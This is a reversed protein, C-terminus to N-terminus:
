KERYAKSAKYLEVRKKVTEAERPQDGVMALMQESVEVAEDFRGAEALAAALTDMLMAHKYADLECVAKAWRVAEEGNRLADDPNTALIWALNNAWPLNGAETSLNPELRLAERFHIAAQQSQKSQLLRMALEAHAKPDDPTLEVVKAFADFSEAPLTQMARIRGLGRYARAMKPDIAIADQFHAAAYSMAPAMPTMGSFVPNTLQNGLCEGLMLHFEATEPHMGIRRGLEAMWVKNRPGQALFTARESPELQRFLHLPADFELRLHLDTNLADSGSRAVMRDLEAQGLRYHLLLILHLDTGGFWQKLDATIEPSKDVIAQLAAISAETPMLPKKSALLITDQGLCLALMGCHPFESRLTRVIMLYDDLTFHYAQLWQALVGDDTLHERAAHFFEKTFLGSVGALWPNSPESIILDYKKSTGQIATRGDGLIMSFRAEAAIREPSVRQSEPLQANRAELAARTKEHPRSNWPGFFESAEYVAPEIECCTVNTGPFLLSKGPTCGSGFGIVAVEKADHKFIRPIFASGLQTVMDGGSSADIKGNVRLNVQNQGFTTVFVNSSAGERFFLPSILSRGQEDVELEARITPSDGYLFFGVDTKRPDIPRGLFAVLLAAAVAAGGGRLQNTRGRWPIIVLLAISYFAAALALAGATGIWPFLLVSTLGAGAISGVTNWGYIDGVARGVRPGGAYTLHVFLPFLLGMAVAPIFEVAASMGVCLAGNAIQWGRLHQVTMDGATQSLTPLLLKGALATILLIGVAAIPVMPSSAVRRLAVHFILSGVAMGLLVVFLTATFAYTSGGLVLALQRSWTMELILAACGALTTGFYLGLLTPRWGANTSLDPAPQPKQKVRTSGGLQSGVLLSVFGITINVAAALNNTWLLGLSPLLHFGALYCGTAAGLTNIGYLWGTAHDLSEDRATLQRVLLPLTGGMLACAPGIVVLTICFQVLYRLLPQEPISAYLGVSADVLAAIEFPIILALLGIALECLGYWRLPTATHDAYRGILFAGLGLGFLFSSGVAAFALSTSGWVHSFRKFWIVQYVLGTGGSTLFLLSALWFVRARVSGSKQASM